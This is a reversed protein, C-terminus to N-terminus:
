RRSSLFCMAETTIPTVAEILEMRYGMPKTTWKGRPLCSTAARMLPTAPELSLISSATWIVTLNACSWILNGQKDYTRTYTTRNDWTGDGERDSELVRQIVNGRKDHTLQIRSIRTAAGDDVSVVELVEEIRSNQRDYGYTVTARFLLTGDPISYSEFLGNRRNGHKDYTYNSISRREM